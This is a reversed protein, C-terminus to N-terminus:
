SPDLPRSAPESRTGMVLMWLLFLVEALGAPLAFFPALNSEFGPSLYTVVLGALYGGCGIMLLVGLARPFYGSRYVLYGLPLLWLAFFVQAIHYGHRHMDLPLMVLAASRESSSGVTYAPDTAILLAGLHNLLNVGLIAVAVANFVVMALAIRVDVSKLIAYMVLALLLFSTINVLDAAFALRMMSAQEVVNATTAAPDGSVRIGSRVALEAWGGSVALLLYLFGALRTLGSRGTM